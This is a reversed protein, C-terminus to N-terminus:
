DKNKEAIFSFAPGGPHDFEDKVIEYNSFGVAILARLFDEKTLRSSFEGVGAFSRDERSQDYEYHYYNCSFEIEKLFNRESSEAYNSQDRSIYHTWEFIRDTRKSIQWLLDVPDEMHYFVGSAFILDYSKSTKKLYESFDGLLFRANMELANKVMLCKLFNEPHAEVATLEAGLKELQYTHGGELPGLELIEWGDISLFKKVLSSPRDDINEFVRHSGTRLTDIPVNCVWDFFDFGNSISAVKKCFEDPPFFKTKM